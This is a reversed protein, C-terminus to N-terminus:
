KSSGLMTLFGMACCRSRENILQYRRKKVFGPIKPSTKVNKSSKPRKICNKQYMFVKLQFFGDFYSFVIACCRSHDNIFQCFNQILFSYIQGQLFDVKGTKAFLSRKGQFCFPTSHVTKLLHSIPASRSIFHFWLKNQASNKALCISALKTCM